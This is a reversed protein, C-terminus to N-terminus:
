SGFADRLYELVSRLDNETLNANGGKAPMAMPSGPSQYGNIINQLLEHDPKALRGDQRTLDPVGAFTGKGDEGHCAICTQKYIDKGSLGTGAPATTSTKILRAKVATDNSTQLFTLINRMEEGTLGARVRMHFMTTIWQDDRLEDAPRINHCRACNEAWQQSGKAYDGPAPYDFATATHPLFLGSFVLAATATKLRLKFTNEAKM